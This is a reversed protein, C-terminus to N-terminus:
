SLIELLIKARLFFYAAAGSALFGAMLALITAALALNTAAVL